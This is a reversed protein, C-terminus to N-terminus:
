GPATRPGKTAFEFSRKNVRLPQRAQHRCIRYQNGEGCGPPRFMAADIGEILLQQTGHANLGLACKISKADHEIGVMRIMGIGGLVM